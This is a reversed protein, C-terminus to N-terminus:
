DPGQRLLFPDRGTKGWNTFNTAINQRDMGSRVPIPAEATTPFSKQTQPAPVPAAAAPPPAHTAGGGRSRWFSSVRYTVFVVAGVALVGTVIPNRFLNM